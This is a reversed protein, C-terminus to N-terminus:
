TLEATREYNVDREYRTGEWATLRAKRWAWFGYSGLHTPYGITAPGELVSLYLCMCLQWYTLFCVFWDQGFMEEWAGM